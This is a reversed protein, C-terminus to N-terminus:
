HESLALSRLYVAIARRDEANLRGTGQDIVESMVGGAFDGDPAMGVELFFVLMRETWGGIGSDKNPTIDPVAEGDPGEPNGWYRQAEIVAGLSNRASHCEACHGLAEVLYAGRNWLPGREPVEQLAGPEFYLWKWLGVPWRWDAYWALDHERNPQAVPEVADLYAKIALIDERKMRSYSTYPFAPYYHSGEPSVGETLARVFDEDSWRGIGFQPHPTINSTYFTGFPSAIARGGALYAGDKATHCVGCLAARFLYEGREVAMDAASVTATGVLLALALPADLARNGRLGM